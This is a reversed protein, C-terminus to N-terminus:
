CTYNGATTFVIPKPSPKTRVQGGRAVAQIRTAAQRKKRFLKVEKLGRAAAQPTGVRITLPYDMLRLVGIYAIRM